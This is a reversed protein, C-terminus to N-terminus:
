RDLRLGVANQVVASSEASPPDQPVQTTVYESASIASVVVTLALVFSAVIALLALYPAVRSWAGEASPNMVSEFM